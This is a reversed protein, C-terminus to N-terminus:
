DLSKRVAALGYWPVDPHEHHEWHYGFHYCSLFSWVSSCNISTARHRNTYGASPERHPLYIGFYFLQWSSLLLPLLWFLLVNALPVQFGFLLSYFVISMGILLIWSQKGSLYSKMFHFYWAAISQPEQDYFDPDRNTAPARHHLRHNALLDQYPLLAYLASVVTGIGENIKRNKSITGHMADHATIFLGTHLFTRILIVPILGFIQLSSIDITFCWILSGLWLSTITAAILIGAYSAISISSSEKLRIDLNQM